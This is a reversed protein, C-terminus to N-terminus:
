DLLFEHDIKVTADLTDMVIGDAGFVTLMEEVKNAVSSENGDGSRIFLINGGRTKKFDSKFNMIISATTDEAWSPGIEGYTSWFSVRMGLKNAALLAAPHRHGGAGKYWSPQRGIIKFYNIATQHVRNKIPTWGESFSAETTIGINHAKSLEAILHPNQKLDAATAFITLRAENKKCATWLKAHDGSHHESGEAVDAAPFIDAFDVTVAVRNTNPQGHTYCKAFWNSCIISHKNLTPLCIATATVVLTALSNVIKYADGGEM